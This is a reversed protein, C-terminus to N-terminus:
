ICMQVCQDVEPVFSRVAGLVSSRSATLVAGTSVAVVPENLNRNAGSNAIGIGLFQNIFHQGMVALHQDCVTTAGSDPVGFELGAYVTRGFACRRSFGPFTSSQM